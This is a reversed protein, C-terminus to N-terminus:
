IWPFWWINSTFPNRSSNRNDSYGNKTILNTDGPEKWHGLSSFPPSKKSFPAQTEQSVKQTLCLGMIIGKWPNRPRGPYGLIAGGQGFYSKHLATGSIGSNPISTLVSLKPSPLIWSEPKRVRRHSM